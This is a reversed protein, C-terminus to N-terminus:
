LLWTICWRCHGITSYVNCVILSGCGEFTYEVCFVFYHSHMGLINNGGYSCDSSGLGAKSAFTDFKAKM